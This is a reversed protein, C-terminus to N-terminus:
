DNSEGGMVISSIQAVSLLIQKGSRADTFRVAEPRSKSALLDSLFEAETADIYYVDGNAMSILPQFGTKQYGM